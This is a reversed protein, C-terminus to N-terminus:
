ADKIKVTIMSKRVLNNLQKTKYNQLSPSFHAPRKHQKLLHDIMGHCLKCMDRKILHIKLKLGRFWVILVRPIHVHDKFKQLVPERM